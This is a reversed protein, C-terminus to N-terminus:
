KDKELKSIRRDITFLYFFLGSMILAIVGVVVYIKGSSRMATAMDIQETATQALVIGTCFLGILLTFLYKM